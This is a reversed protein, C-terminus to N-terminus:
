HTELWNVGQRSEGKLPCKLKLIEGATVISNNAVEMYKEALQPRVDTQAEDHVNACFEYMVEEIARVLGAPTVGCTWGLDEQLVRDLIKIFLKMVIAEGSQLLTALGTHAKLVDVRRGDLGIVFGREQVKATVAEKLLIEAAFRKALRERILKGVKKQEPAKEDPAAIQGLRLDGGGLLRAYGITKGKGRGIDGPGLLDCGVIDRLWAHPDEKDVIRAYEGGDYPSLYHGFLRLQIGSADTGCLVFGPTAEFLERCDAGYGGALGYVAEKQENKVVSIVQGMNPKMHACRHTYTGIHIVRGHIRFADKGCAPCSKALSLWANAGSSLYGIAKLVVYYDALKQAEPWPLQRLVEDDIKPSPPKMKGTKKDKTPMNFKTPKWGYLKALIFKVDDRSKPNFVRREVPTYQAGEEYEMLPPGVYPKLAKGKENFRLKTVDPFGLMKVRRTKKVYEVNSPAWWEGFHEVLRAEMEREDKHLRGALAQAKAMNFAFGWAEQRNMISSFDHEITIAQRSPKRSMLFTFLARLTKIDGMMYEQMEPSWTQWDGGDFDGKHQGLRLGWAKLSHRSRLQAPLKHNNPATKQPKAFLLRAIILTDLVTGNSFNFKPYLRAVAREDFDLSNHGIRIDALTLRALGSLNGLFGPQDACSIIEKTGAGQFDVGVCHVKTITDLLGNSEVDWFALLPGDGPRGDRAGSPAGATDLGASNEHPQQESTAM